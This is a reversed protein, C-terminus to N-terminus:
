KNINQGSPDKEWCIGEGEHGTSEGHHPETWHGVDNGRDKLGRLDEDVQTDEEEQNPKDRSVKHWNLDEMGIAHACAYPYGGNLVM